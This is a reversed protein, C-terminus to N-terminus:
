SRRSVVNLKQALGLILRAFFFVRSPFSKFFFFLRYAIAVLEVTAAQITDAFGRYDMTDEVSRVPGYYPPEWVLTKFVGFNFVGATWEFYPRFTEGSCACTTENKENFFGDLTFCGSFSHIM